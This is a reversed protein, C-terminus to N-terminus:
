FWPTLLAPDRQLSRSLNEGQGKCRWSAAQMGQSRVGEEWRWLQCNGSFGTEHRVARVSLRRGRGGGYPISTIGHPGGTVWSSRGVEPAASQGSENWGCWNRKAVYNLLDVWQLSESTSMKPATTRGVVDVRTSEDKGPFTGRPCSPNRHQHLSQRTRTLMEPELLVNRIWLYLLTHAFCHSVKVRGDQKQEEAVRNTM